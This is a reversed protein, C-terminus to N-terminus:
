EEICNKLMAIARVLDNIEEFDLRISAVGENTDQTICVFTGAGDDTLRIKTALESFVASEGEPHMSIETITLKM